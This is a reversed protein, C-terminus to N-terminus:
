ETTSEAVISIITAHYVSGRTSRKSAILNWAPSRGDPVWSHLELMGHISSSPGGIIILKDACAKFGIGWGNMSSVNVPWKGITIWRNNEKDYRKVNKEAYDCGYLENSVVAVIPPAYDKVNLGETMNEIVRWSGLEFDYEEGCTLEENNSGKGGIVFLKGDMFVGSCQRRARNMSPLPEWGREVSDYMDVSSLLRGYNDTGGALYAKHGASASGFLYRPYNAPDTRIYRMQLFQIHEVGKGKFFVLLDRGVAISEKYSDRPFVDKIIKPM